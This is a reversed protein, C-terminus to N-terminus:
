ARFQLWCRILAISAPFCRSLCRFEGCKELKLSTLDNLLPQELLPCLRQYENGDGIWRTYQCILAAPKYCKVRVAERRTRDKTFCRSLLAMAPTKRGPAVATM